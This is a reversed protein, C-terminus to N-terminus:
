RALFCRAPGWHKLPAAQTLSEANGSFPPLMQMVLKLVACSSFITRALHRKDLALENEALIIYMLILLYYVNIQPICM